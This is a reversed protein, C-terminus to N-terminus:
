AQPPRLLDEPLPNATLPRGSDRLWAIVRDAAILNGDATWFATGGSGSLLSSPSSTGTSSNSGTSGLAFLVRHPEDQPQGPVHDVPQNQDNTSGTAGTASDSEESSVLAIFQETGVPDSPMQISAHVTSTGILAVAACILMQISREVGRYTLPLPIM